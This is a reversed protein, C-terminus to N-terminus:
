GEDEFVDGQTKWAAWTIRPDEPYRKLFRREGAARLAANHSWAREGGVFPARLAEYIAVVQWGPVELEGMGIRFIEDALDRTGSQTWYAYDHVIAAHLYAGDRPLATWFISPVSALDTVFGAPVDVRQFREADAGDPKWYIPQRLYYFDGGHFPSLVPVHGPMRAVMLVENLFDEKAGM